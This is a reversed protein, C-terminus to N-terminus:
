PFILYIQAEIAISWFAGNPTTNSFIDQVLLANVLFSKLDVTVGARQALVLNVVLTSFILAAWYPPLIRWARRRAFGWKGEPLRGGHRAPRVSLSYGSVVIFVVVGLQGPVLWGAWTPGRQAPLSALRQDVNTCSSMCRRWLGCVTLGNSAHRRHGPPLLSPERSAAPGAGLSM